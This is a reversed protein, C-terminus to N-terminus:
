IWWTQKKTWTSCNPEWQVSKWSIQYKLIKRFDTMFIQTEKFYSFFLLYM